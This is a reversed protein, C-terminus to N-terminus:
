CLSKKVITMHTKLLIDARKDRSFFLFGSTRYYKKLDNALFKQCMIFREKLQLNMSEALTMPTLFTAILSLMHLPFISREVLTKGQLYWTQLEQFSLAVGQPSSYDITPYALNKM